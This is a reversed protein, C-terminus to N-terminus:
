GELIASMPDIFLRREMYLFEEVTCSLDYQLIALMERELRNMEEIQTIGGVYAYHSNKYVSDDLFKTAIVTATLVLRHVNYPSVVLRQDRRALRDLYVLAVLFASKSCDMYTILRHVYVDVSLPLRENSFFICVDQTPRPRFATKENWECQENLAMSIGVALWESPTDEFHLEEFPEVFDQAFSTVDVPSNSELSSSTKSRWIPELSQLTSEGVTVMSEESM